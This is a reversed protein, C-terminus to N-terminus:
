RQVAEEIAREPHLGKDDVVFSLLRGTEIYRPIDPVVEETVECERIEISRLQGPKVVKFLLRLGDNHLPIANFHLTQLSECEPILGIVQAAESVSLDLWGLTLSTLISTKPLLDTPVDVIVPGSDHSLDISAAIDAPYVVSDSEEQLQALFDHRAQCTLSLSTM